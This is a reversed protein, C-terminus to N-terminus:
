CNQKTNRDMAKDCKPVDKCYGWTNKGGKHYCWPGNTDNDPNRCKSNKLM